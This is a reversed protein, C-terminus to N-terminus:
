NEFRLGFSFNFKTIDRTVLLTNIQNKFPTNLLNNWKTFVTFHRNHLGKEASFALNSQPRQYYDYGYIPYVLAISNGIYQFALEAFFSRKKDRYLASLNLTHDTQGQLARKQLTDANVYGTALNYYSKVSSIKSNLYTYNGTVGIHGFYRTFALEVGYDTAEPANVPQYNTGSIYAFEIPNNLKKYFVGAFIQEEEKPYLEYRIDYNDSTTHNLYPNGEHHHGIHYQVPHPCWTMSIPGPSAKYYSLRLNTVPNLKIKVMISPLVDTYDKNVGNIGTAYFTNLTYGQQTKEVRAGGFVDLFPLSVKVEGYGATINEYLQYRNKNYDPTGSSNYVTWQANYINTFVQKVGASTTTPKLDYEDQNNSRTKHRYLGGAKLELSVTGITSRYTLNAMGDFDQDENHQWIRTIQDFYNPHRLFTYPGNIDGTTHVTDIKKNLSLDAMIRRVSRAAYSYVGIWDLLFHKSLIHKGDLKVNELFQQSTVSTYDTSVPGTGPVTRGGNGGLISTDIITRAQALNSYLRINTLTIKNRENLNYDLHITLGNNMQQTSFYRNAYDSLAPAGNAHVDPAAQNFISNSGYYQNQYSEAILLGLKQKFLVTEMPSRPWRMPVPNYKPSTWIAGASIM